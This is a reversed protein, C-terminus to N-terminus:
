ARAMTSTSSSPRRSARRRRNQQACLSVGRWLEATEDPWAFRAAYYSNWPDARPEELGDFEIEIHLVRSGAWVRTTQRFGALRRDDADVLSGRSVIEGLATSAVTVEVSEARMTSYIGDADGGPPASGVRM